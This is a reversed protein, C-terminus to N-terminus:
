NYNKYIYSLFLWVQTLTSAKITGQTSSDEVHAKCHAKGQIEEHQLMQKRINTSSVESHPAPPQKKETKLAVIEEELMRVKERLMEECENEEAAKLPKPTNFFQKRKKKGGKGRVREPHKLTGLALTLIDKQGICKIRGEEVDKM